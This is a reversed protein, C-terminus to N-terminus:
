TKNSSNPKCAICFKSRFKISALQKNINKTFDSAIVEISEIKSDPLNAKQTNTSKLGM